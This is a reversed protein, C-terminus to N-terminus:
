SVTMRNVNGFVTVVNTTACFAKVNIAVTGTGTLRLGPVVLMPGSEAPVTVELLNNPSTVGGYEITLKRDTTDTNQAYLWIEDFVTASIGTSHIATGPTATAVVLIPQGQSSGSLLVPVTPIGAM